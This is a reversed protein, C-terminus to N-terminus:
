PMATDIALEWDDLIVAYGVGRTTQIPLAEGSLKSAKGRLRHMMMDLRHGDFRGPDDDISGFLAERTVPEGGAQILARMVMRENATLPICAGSPSQLSWDGQGLRWAPPRRATDPAARAIRRMVSHLTAALVDVEVPKSLFADASEMLATLRTEKRRNSTLIVIGVPSVERLQRAVDLGSERPLGVDIVVADFSQTLMALFLYKSEGVGVVDFGYNRLGRALIEERLEVNDELLAVRSRRKEVNM